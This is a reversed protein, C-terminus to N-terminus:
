LFSQTHEPSLTSARSMGPIWGRNTPQKSRQRTVINVSSDRSTNSTHPTYLTDVYRPKYHPHPKGNRNDNILSIYRIGGPIKETEEPLHGSTFPYFNM